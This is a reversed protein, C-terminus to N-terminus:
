FLTVNGPSTRGDTSIPAALETRNRGLTKARYLAQDARALLINLDDTSLLEAVGISVTMPIPVDGAHLEAAAIALRLREAFEAGGDAPTEPLLVGFEEGGLRGAMDTSRLVGVTVASLQRLAEDGMAHGHQDNISKFHDVDFVLVTLPRQYRKARALEAEATELFHRRNPLSTLADTTAWRRLETEVQRQYQLQQDRLAIELQLQRTIHSQALAALWCFGMLAFCMLAANRGWEEGWGRLVETRLIGVVAVLPWDEAVRYSLLREAGDMTGGNRPVHIVGLPSAPIAETFLRTGSLDMGMASPILPARFLNIGDRRHIAISSGQPLNPLSSLLDFAEPHIAILVLGAFHNRRDTIARALVILPEDTVKSIIPRSIALGMGPNAKLMQFFDRDAASIALGGFRDSHQIVRGEADVVAASRTHEHSSGLSVLDDWLQRSRAAEAMGMAEVRAALTILQRDHFAFISTVERLIFFTLDHGQRAAQVFRNDMDRWAIMGFTTLFAATLVALVLWGEFRTSRPIRPEPPM